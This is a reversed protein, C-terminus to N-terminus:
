DLETVAFHLRIGDVRSAAAAVRAVDRHAVGRDAKILVNGKGKDMEERVQSEIEDAQQASDNSLENGAIKGDGLYVPATDLGSQAITFITSEREGVGVGHRAEPLQAEVQIDPTSAVLFFILLLFTIDIMPTIDLHTSEVVPGRPILRNLDEEDDEKGADSDWDKVDKAQEYAKM